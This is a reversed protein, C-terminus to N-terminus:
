QVIRKVGVEEVDVRSVEPLVEAGATRCKEWDKGGRTEEGVGDRFKKQSHSKKVRSDFSTNKKKWACM